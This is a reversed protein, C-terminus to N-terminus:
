RFRPLHFRRKRGTSLSLWFHHVSVTRRLPVCYVVARFRRSAVLLRPFFRALPLQRAFLIRFSLEAISKIMASRGTAQQKKKASSLACTRNGKKLAYGLTRVTKCSGHEFRRKTYSVPNSLGSLSNRLADFIYELCNSITLSIDLWPDTFDM